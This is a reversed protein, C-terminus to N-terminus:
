LLSWEGEESPDYLELETLDVFTIVGRAEVNVGFYNSDVTYGSGHDSVSATHKKAVLREESKTGDPWRVKVIQGAILTIGRSRSATGATSLGEGSYAYYIYGWDDFREIKRYSV